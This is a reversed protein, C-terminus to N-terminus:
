KSGVRVRGSVIRVQDERDVSQDVRTRVKMVRIRMQDEGQDDGKIRVRIRM